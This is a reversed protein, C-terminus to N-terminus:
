MTVVIKGLHHASQMYGLADPLQGFAFRMCIVPKIGHEEIFRVMDTFTERSGVLIGAIRVRNMLLPGIDVEGKLGTLAGLMSVTGGPRTALISQSLTKIGGNEVVVDAGTGGTLELVRKEWKPNQKYNITHDAGLRIARALKEDSSSTIIVRAGMAKALQLAFISVGGTGLTLVTQGAQLNGETVLANWATLAAIPLTAAEEDDYGAPYPVVASAPLAVQEAALGTSPTGLTTALYEGRYAGKIWGSIFHSMVRDGIQVGAVNEGVAKVVGAGDSIPTAPLKLRPNYGGTVVLVDRFNLSLAQVEVVVEDPGPQPADATVMNLHEPGFRAFEYKRM